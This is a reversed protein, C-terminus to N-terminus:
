AAQLAESNTLCGASLYGALPRHPVKLTVWWAYAAGYGWSVAILVIVLGAVDNVGGWEGRSLGRALYFATASLGLGVAIYGIPAWEPHAPRHRAAAFAFAAM